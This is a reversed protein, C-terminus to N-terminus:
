NEKNSFQVILADGAGSYITDMTRLVPSLILWKIPEFKIKFTNNVEGRAGKKFRKQTLYWSPPTRLKYWDIQLGARDALINIGEISYHCIHYPVHWNIWNKGNKRRYRSSINPCSVIMRGGKNLCRKASKLLDIPKDVHEIIQSLLILDFSRANAKRSYSKLDGHYFINEDFHFFESVKNDVDIGFWNAKRNKVPLCNTGYGCGVDLVDDGKEAYLSLDIGNMIFSWFKSSRILQRLRVRISDIEGVYNRSPKESYYKTYLDSTYKGDICEGLFFTNCRICKNLPFVDPMGYRDDYLDMKHNFYENNCAPCRNIEKRPITLSMVINM